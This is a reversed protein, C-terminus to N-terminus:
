YLRNEKPCTRNQDRRLRAILIKIAGIEKLDARIKVGNGFFVFEVKLGISIKIIICGIAHFNVPENQFIKM